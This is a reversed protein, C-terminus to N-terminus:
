TMSPSLAATDSSRWRKGALVTHGIPKLQDDQTACAHASAQQRCAPTLLLAKMAM